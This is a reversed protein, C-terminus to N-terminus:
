EERFSSGRRMPARPARLTLGGLNDRDFDPRVEIGHPTEDSPTLQSNTRPTIRGRGGITKALQEAERLFEQYARERAEDHALTGCYLHWVAAKTAASYHKSDGDDYAAGVHVEFTGEADTCAAALRTTNVTAVSAPEGLNTLSVLDRNSIRATVRDALAM